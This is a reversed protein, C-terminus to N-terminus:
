GARTSHLISPERRALCESRSCVRCSPGIKQAKANAEEHRILLMSTTLIPPGDFSLPQAHGAIAFSQFVVQETSELLGQIPQGPASLAQFLPWIACGAGFRPISFGAVSKRLVFAGSADSSLYGIEPLDSGLPLAALRRFMTPLDVKFESALHAPDIRAENVKSRLEDIPVLAAERAYQRLKNEAFSRAPEDKFAPEQDLLDAVAEIGDVEISDFYFRERDFYAAVAELATVFGTRDTTLRDLHSVMTASSEALRRSEADLNGHFRERWGPDLAPTEALIASTSRIASVTSIIEHMKESLIPDHTLRDDLSSITRELEEIRQEQETLRSAWGPFRSVLEDIRNEEVDGDGRAAIRELEGRAKAGPGESLYTWDVDLHRALKTLLQASVPRRDHEILNLYSASIELSKALVSQKIGLDIRKQRIREGVADSAQWKKLIKENGQQM